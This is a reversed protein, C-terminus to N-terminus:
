AGARRTTVSGVKLLRTTNETVSPPPELERTPRVRVERSSGAAIPTTASTIPAPHRIQLSGAANSQALLRMGKVIMPVGPFLLWWIMPEGEFLPILAVILLGIGVILKRIARAMDPSPNLPIPAPMERLRGGCMRCFNATTISEAGCNLCRM